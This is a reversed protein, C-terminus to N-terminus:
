DSEILPKHTRSPFSAVEVRKGISRLKRVTDLFDGDGSVIVFTDYHEICAQIDNAM